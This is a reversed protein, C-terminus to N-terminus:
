CPHPRCGDLAELLGAYDRRGLVEWVVACRGCVRVYAQGDYPVVRLGELRVVQRWELGGDLGPHGHYHDPVEEVRGDVGMIRCAEGSLCYAHQAPIEAEVTHDNGIVQRHRPRLASSSRGLSRDLSHLRPGIQEYDGTWRLLLGGSVIGHHVGDFGPLDRARPDLFGDPAQECDLLSIAQAPRPPMLYFTALYLSPLVLLYHPSGPRRLREPLRFSSTPHSFYGELVYGLDEALVHDGDVLHIQIDRVPLEYDEDARGTAPLGRGQTHDGAELVYSAAFDKYPILDDVIKRRALPVYGHDELIVGEVRVHVHPLVHAEGEFEALHVLRLDRAPHVLGGPYERDFTEEVSLGLRERTALPLPHGQTPGYHALRLREKHVLRETVEVGLQPHLHPRLYGFQVVPYARRGDVDGVVLGLGHRHGVADHDELVALHLLYRGGLDHIVLRVVHKHCAKDSARRHVEDHGAQLLLVAAMLHDEAVCAQSQGLFFNTPGLLPAVIGFGERVLVHDEADPRLMEFVGLGLRGLSDSPRFPRIRHVDHRLDYLTHSRLLVQVELNGSVLGGM